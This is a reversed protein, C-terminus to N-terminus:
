GSLHWEVHFLANSTGFSMRCTQTNRPLVRKWEVNLDVNLDVNLM